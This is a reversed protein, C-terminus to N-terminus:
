EGAILDLLVTWAMMGNESFYELLEFNDKHTIGGNALIIQLQKDKSARKYVIEALHEGLNNAFKILYQKQLATLKKAM